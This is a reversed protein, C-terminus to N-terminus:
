SVPPGRKMRFRVPGAGFELSGGEPYTKFGTHGNVSLGKCVTSRLSRGQGVGRGLDEEQQRLFVRLVTLKFACDNAAPAVTRVSLLGFSVSSSCPTCATM